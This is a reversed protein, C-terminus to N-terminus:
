ARATAAGLPQLRPGLRNSTPVRQTTCIRRLASPHTQWEAPRAPGQNFITPEPLSPRSLGDRRFPKRCSMSERLGGSCMKLVPNRCKRTQPVAHGRDSRTTTKHYPPSASRLRVCGGGSCSGRATTRGGSEGNSSIVRSPLMGAVDKWASSGQWRRKYGRSAGKGTFPFARPVKQHTRQTQTTLKM